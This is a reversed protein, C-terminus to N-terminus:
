LEPPLFFQQTKYKKEITIHRETLLNSVSQEITDPDIDQIYIRKLDKMSDFLIKDVSRNFFPFSYGIIVLTDADQISKIVCDLFKPDLAEWAFSLACDNQEDKIIDSVKSVAIQPKSSCLSVNQYGQNMFPNVINKTKSNYLLASGNLKIVRFSDSKRAGHIGYNKHDLFLHEEIDSISSSRLYESFALELQYDYNWSLIRVNSPLDKADNGLISAFFADYRKDPKNLMQELMLYASLIRKLQLYSHDQGTLWLKKAFTDVTAHRASEQQLWKLQRALTIYDSFFPNPISEAVLKYILGLMYEMRGPLESVVPLGEIISVSKSVKLIPDSGSVPDYYSYEITEDTPGRRGFSAGAGLLYVIKSM